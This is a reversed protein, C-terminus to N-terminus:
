WKFFFCFQYKESVFNLLIRFLFIHARYDNIKETKFKIFILLEICLSTLDSYDLLIKSQGWVFQLM